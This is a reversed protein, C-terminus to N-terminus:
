LRVPADPEICVASWAEVKYVEFRWGRAEEDEQVLREKRIKTRSYPRNVVHQYSGSRCHYQSSRPIRPGHELATDNGPM